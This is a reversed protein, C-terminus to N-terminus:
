NLGEILTDAQEETLPEENIAKGTEKNIVSFTGDEENAVKEYTSVVVPKAPEDVQPELVEFLDMFAKPIKNIDYYFEENPKVIKNPLLFSGGGIKRLKTLGKNSVAVEAEKSKMAKLQPEKATEKVARTRKAM